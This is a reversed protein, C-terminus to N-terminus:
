DSTLTIHTPHDLFFGTSGIHYLHSSGPFGPLASSMKMGGMGKKKAMPTASMSGMMKMCCMDEDMDDEMGMGGGKSSMGASKMPAKKKAGQGMKMGGQGVQKGMGGHEQAFSAAPALLVIVMVLAMALFGHQTVTLKINEMLNSRWVGPLVGANQVGEAQGEPINKVYDEPHRHFEARCGESCFYYICGGYELAHTTQKEDVQMSMRCRYGDSVEVDSGFVLRAAVRAKEVEEVLGIEDVLSAM